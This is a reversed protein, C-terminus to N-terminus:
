AIYEKKTKSFEFDVAKEKPGIYIGIGKLGNNPKLVIWDSEIQPLVKPLNVKEGVWWTKPMYEGVEQYSLWKRWCIVKFEHVNVVRLSDEKRPFKLGGTRDYVLDMKIPNQIKKFDKGDFLWSKEFVGNGKYSSSPLVYVEWGENKMFELLRLYVPLKIEGAQSLPYSDDFEKSFCVGVKKPKIM